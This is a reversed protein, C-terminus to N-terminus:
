WTIREAKRSIESETVWLLPGVRCQPNAVTGGGVGGGGGGGGPRCTRRALFCRSVDEQWTSAQHLRGSSLVVTHGSRRRHEARRLRLSPGGAWCHPQTDNMCAKQPPARMGAKSGPRQFAQRRKRGKRRSRTSCIGRLLYKQTRRVGGQTGEDRAARTHIWLLGADEKKM